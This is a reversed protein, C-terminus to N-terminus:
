CNEITAQDYHDGSLNLLYITPQESPDEGFLISRDFRQFAYTGSVGYASWVFIRINFLSAAATVEHETGWTGKQYMAKTHEYFKDEDGYLAIFHSRVTDNLMHQVVLRRFKLHQREWGTISRAIAKFLCDGSGSCERFTVKVRRELAAGIQMEFQKTQYAKIVKATCFKEFYRFGFEACIQKREASSM